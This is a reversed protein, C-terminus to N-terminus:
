IFTIYVEFKRVRNIDQYLCVVSVFLHPTQDRTKLNITFDVMIKKFIKVEM